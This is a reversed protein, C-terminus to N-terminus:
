EYIEDGVVKVAIDLWSQVSNIAARAESITLAYIYACVISDNLGLKVVTSGKRWSTVEPMVADYVKQAGNQDVVSVEIVASVSPNSELTSTSV